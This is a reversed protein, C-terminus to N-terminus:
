VARHARDSIWLTSVDPVTLSVDPVIRRYMPFALTSVDPVNRRYMPFPSPPAVRAFDHVQARYTRAYGRLEM